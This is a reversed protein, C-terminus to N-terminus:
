SDPPISPASAMIAMRQLLLHDFRPVSRLPAEEFKSTKSSMMVAFRVSSITRHSTPAFHFWHLAGQRKM